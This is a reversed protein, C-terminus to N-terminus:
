STREGILIPFLEELNLAIEGDIAALQKIQQIVQIRFCGQKQDSGFGERSDICQGIRIRYPGPKATDARIFSQHQTTM